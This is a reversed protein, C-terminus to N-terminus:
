IRKPLQHKKAPWMVEDFQMDELFRPGEPTTNKAEQRWAVAMYRFADAPHSCWNHLPKNKFCKHDDDWERQYQKLADIGDLCAEENFWCLPLMQRAAQIGDQVGLNPVLKGKIELNWLQQMVSRGQSALTQPKADHPLWHNGYSYPKEHLVNAYGEASEGNSAYYDIVHIRHGIIQFFWIATDDSFGLDWATHVKHAPNWAVKGIRGNLLAQKMERGYYAGLLAADFSCEYEQEFLNDGEDKGFDAQYAAREAELQEITLTGTQYATLLQAFAKPDKLAAEYTRFAHNKGRPTTNFIQWGDNELFIPRLYARSSPNSLAWESYVVGAPPSGVLANFNDSGVVQWTSGNRFKIMMENERTVSRLEHPFAEDIRRRGTHPNIADWIAKRAQNAMPLMYWYTAVREFAACATRHLGVEDKGSRRHWILECHKGGNELYTWAPLQYPRPSWGNPLRIRAM